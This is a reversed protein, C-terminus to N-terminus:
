SSMCRACIHGENLATDRKAICMRCVGVYVMQVDRVEGCAKAEAPIMGATKRRRPIDSIQECRSCMFHDHPEVCKDFRARRTPVAMRQIIGADAFLNLTRYVTDASLAPMQKRASVLLSDADPHATSQFLLELLSVRQRTTVIGAKQLMQTADIMNPEQIADQVLTKAVRGIAACKGCNTGWKHLHITEMIPAGGDVMLLTM